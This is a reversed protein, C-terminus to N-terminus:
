RHKKAAAETEHRNGRHNGLRKIKKCHFCEYEDVVRNGYDAVVLFMFGDCSNRVCAICHSKSYDVHLKNKM